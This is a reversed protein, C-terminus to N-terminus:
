YIEISFISYTNRLIVQSLINNILKCLDQLYLTKSLLVKEKSTAGGQPMEIFSFFLMDIVEIVVKVVAKNNSKSMLKCVYM